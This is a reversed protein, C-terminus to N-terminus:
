PAADETEEAADGGDPAEIRTLDFSCDAATAVLAQQM